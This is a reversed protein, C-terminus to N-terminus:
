SASSYTCGSGKRRRAFGLAAACVALRGERGLGPDRLALVDRTQGVAVEHFVAVVLVTRAAAGQADEEAGRLLQQRVTNPSVSPTGAGAPESPEGLASKRGM